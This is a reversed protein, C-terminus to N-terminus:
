FKNKSLKGGFFSLECKVKKSSIELFILQGFKFLSENKSINNLSNKNLNFGNSNEPFLPKPTKLEKYLGKSFPLPSNKYKEYIENIKSIDIQSLYKNPQIYEVISIKSNIINLQIIKSEKLETYSSKSSFITKLFDSLSPKSTNNKISTSIPNSEESNKASTSASNDKM